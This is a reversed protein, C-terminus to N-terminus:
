LFGITKLDLTAELFNHYSDIAPLVGSRYVNTLV